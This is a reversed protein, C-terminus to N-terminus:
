GRGLFPVPRPVVSGTLGDGLHRDPARMDSRSGLITVRERVAGVRDPLHESVDPLM